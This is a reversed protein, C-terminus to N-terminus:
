SFKNLFISQSPFCLSSVYFLGKDIADQWYKRVRNEWNKDDSWSEIITADHSLIRAALKPLKQYAARAQAENDFPFFHFEENWHYTVAWSVATTKAM